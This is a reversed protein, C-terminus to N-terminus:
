YRQDCHVCDDKRCISGDGCEHILCYDGIDNYQCITAGTHQKFVQRLLAPYLRARELWIASIEVDHVCYYELVEEDLFWQCDSLVKLVQLNTLSEMNMNM